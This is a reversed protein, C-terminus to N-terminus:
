GHNIVHINGGLAKYDEFFDPYSKNIAQANKIIVKNEASTAAIAAAMAIRHDGFSETVGGKLRERGKIILGEPLEEVEGGLAKLMSATTAIRDSEKLRLRAANKFYTTGYSLSAVVALIPLLDPIESVDIEQGKLSSRYARVIRGKQEIRAGGSSLLKAIEKDRQTSNIDLGEITVAGNIAGAAIFFAGNSWDGEVTTRGPSSYSQGGPIKYGSPSKEVTIGYKKLVELTMEVYGISQLPTTLVIESDEHLIPLAFLLGSIYQSSINGPIEYIGGKLRGELTLPLKSSSLQLGGKELAETLERIPREPLRGKGILQSRSGLAGALPLILRLTTGSEGCDLLTNEMPEKIPNVMIHNLDRTFTAGLAELCRLTAEIDESLNNIDIKTKEKCLSAAILERHTASKSAIAQLSGELSGPTIEIDM